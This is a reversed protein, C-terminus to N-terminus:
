ASRTQQARAKALPDDAPDDPRINYQDNLHVGRVKGAKEDQEAREQANALWNGLFRAHSKKRRAPNDLYWAHAKALEHNLDVLPYAKAWNLRRFSCASFGREADWQVPAARKM